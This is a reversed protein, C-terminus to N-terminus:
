NALQMWLSYSFSVHRSILAFDLVLLINSVSLDQLASKRSTQEPQIESDSELYHFNSKLM